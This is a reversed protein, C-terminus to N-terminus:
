WRRGSRARLLRRRARGVRQQPRGAADRPPKGTYARRISGPTSACAPLPRGPWGGISRPPSARMASRGPSSPPQSWWSWRPLACPTAIGSRCARRHPRSKSGRPRPKSASAICRGSRRRRRSREFSQRAHRGASFGPPAASRFRPRAAGASRGAVALAAASRALCRLRHRLAFLALGAIRAWHPLVQWLGAWSLALFFGLITLVPAAARWINEWALAARATAVLRALRRQGADEPGPVQQDSM